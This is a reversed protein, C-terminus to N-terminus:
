DKLTGGNSVYEKYYIPYINKDRRRDRLNKSWDVGYVDIIMNQLRSTTTSYYRNDLYIIDGNKAELIITKYSKVYYMENDNFANISNGSFNKQLRLARKMDEYNTYNM